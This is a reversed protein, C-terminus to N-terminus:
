HDSAPMDHPEGHSVSTADSIPQGTHPDFRPAEIPKGTYPDFKADAPLAPSPNQAAFTPRPSPTEGAKEVEEQAEKLGKKFNVIAGAVSKGVEPLRKGFFLLGIAAIVVWEGMSPIQFALTHMM